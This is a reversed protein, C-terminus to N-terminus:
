NWHSSVQESKQKWKALDLWDLGAMVKSTEKTNPDYMFMGRSTITFISVRVKDAIRRDIRSPKPDRSSPHTHFIAITELHWQFTVQHYENTKGVAVAKYTGDSNQLILVAGEIDGTGLKSRQWAKEIERILGEDIKSLDFLTRNGQATATVILSVSITLAAVISKSRMAKDQKPGINSARPILGKKDSIM